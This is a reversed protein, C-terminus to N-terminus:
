DIPARMTAVISRAFHPAESVLIGSLFAGLVFLVCAIKFTRDEVKSRWERIQAFAQYQEKETELLKTAEERWKQREDNKPGVYFAYAIPLVLCLSLMVTGPLYGAAEAIWRFM